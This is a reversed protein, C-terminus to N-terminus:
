FELGHCCPPEGQQFLTVGDCATGFLSKFHKIKKKKKLHIRQAKMYIVTVIQLVNAVNM